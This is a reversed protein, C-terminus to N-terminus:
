RSAAGVIRIEIRRRFTADLAAVCPTDVALAKNARRPAIHIARTMRRDHVAVRGPRWSRAHEDLADNRRNMLPHIPAIQERASLSGPGARVDRGRTPTGHIPLASVGLRLLLPVARVARESRRVPRPSSALRADLRDRGGWARDATLVHPVDLRLTRPPDEADDDHISTCRGLPREPGTAAERREMSTGTPPPAGRREVHLSRQTLQVM